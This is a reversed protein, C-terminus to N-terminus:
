EPAWSSLSLNLSHSALRPWLARPGVMHEREPVGGVEQSVREQKGQQARSQQDIIETRTGALMRALSGETRM